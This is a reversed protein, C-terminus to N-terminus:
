KTEPKKDTSAPRVFLGKQAMEQSGWGRGQLTGDSVGRDGLEAAGLPDAAQCSGLRQM